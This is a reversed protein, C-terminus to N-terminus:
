READAPLFFIARFSRRRHELRRAQNRAADDIISQNLTSSDRIEVIIRPLAQVVLARKEIFSM